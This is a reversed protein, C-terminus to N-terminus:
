FLFLILLVILASLLPIIADIAVWRRPYDYRNYLFAIGVISLLALLLGIPQTTVFFAYVMLRLGMRPWMSDVIRAQAEKGRYALVRETVFWIHTSILLGIGFIWWPSLVELVPLDTTQAMWYGVLILSLWHLPQDILYPGIIWQPRTRGLFNKFYDILFHFIAIVLVYPWVIARVPWTFITMIVWHVVIHITLGPLHKKAAVLRDPQLPYDATLHALFLVWFM